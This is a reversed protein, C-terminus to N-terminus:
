EKPEQKQVPWDDIYFQAVHADLGNKVLVLNNQKCYDVAAEKTAFVAMISDGGDFHEHCEFLIYVNM